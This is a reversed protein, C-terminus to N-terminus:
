DQMAGSITDEYIVRDNLQYADCYSNMAMKQNETTQGATSVRCYLANKMLQGKKSLSKRTIIYAEPKKLFM